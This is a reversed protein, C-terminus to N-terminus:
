LDLVLRKTQSRSVCPMILGREALAPDDATLSDRHDPTGALVTAACTGCTGEECSSDHEIGAARLADLISQDAAVALVIGSRALEVEFAEGDRSAAEPSFSEFRIRRAPRDCALERVARMMPNPGCCYVAATEPASALVPALDLRREDRAGSLHLRVRGGSLAALEKEFAMAEPTRACYVLQWPIGARTAAFIMSRIPTIGIGGALFLYSEAPELPFNNRPLSCRVARGPRLVDHARRSGGRGAEVRHIAILYRHREEPDNCLSYQRVVGEGLHVDVHSGPTFPPLLAGAVDVFEFASIDRALPTVARVLLNLM